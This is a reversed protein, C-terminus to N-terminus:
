RTRGAVALLDRAPGAPQEGRRWVARLARTLDVGEVDVAVLRGRHVDDRVAWSSLVAPGAGALVASRVASTSSLELLPVPPELDPLATALAAELSTRTGSSPERQVLRATALDSPALLRRRRAWPHGPPVVVRLEDRAVVRGTLGTPLDPGEVFGLHARASLVRRAVEETNVADLSVRTAPREAALRALWRPLLHEAVTLSSAVRLHSSRAGRLSSIGTDLVEAASLVDRAWEVLLAGERTPRSGHPGRELLPFGVLREVRRLRASAAQQSTGRERAAAGVSGTTAVAVLLELADLDPVRPSLM